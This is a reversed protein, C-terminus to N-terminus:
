HNPRLQACKLCRVIESHHKRMMQLSEKLAVNEAMAIDRATEAALTDAYATWMGNEDAEMSVGAGIPSYRTAM